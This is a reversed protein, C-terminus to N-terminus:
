RTVYKIKEYGCIKSRTHIAPLAHSMMADTPQCLIVCVVCLEVYQVCKNLWLTHTLSLSDNVKGIKWKPTVILVLDVAYSDCRM